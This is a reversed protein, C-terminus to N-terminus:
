TVRVWPSSDLAQLVAETTAVAWDACPRNLFVDLWTGGREFISYLALRRALAQLKPREFLNGQFSTHVPRADYHVLANRLDFLEPMSRWPEADSDVTLGMSHALM